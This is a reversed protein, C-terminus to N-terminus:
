KDAITDSTDGGQRSRQVKGVADSDEEIVALIDTEVENWDERAAETVVFPDSSNRYPYIPEKEGLHRAKERSSLDRLFIKRYSGKDMVTAHKGGNEGQRTNYYQKNYSYGKYAYYRGGSYHGGMKSEIVGNFIAGLVNVGGMDLNDLLEKVGGKTSIGARVNVALGDVHKAIAMLESAFLLPPTDILIYDYIGLLYDILAAYAPSNFIASPLPPLKGPPLIHLFQLDDIPQVIVEEVSLGKTVVDVLGQKSKKLNFFGALQPLRLDGDILLVKQNNMAMATGINATVTTKGEGMGSSSISFVRQQGNYMGFSINNAILKYRESEFSLPNNHVILSPYEMSNDYSLLPIWGLLPRNSGIIKRLISEDKITVDSMERAIALLVGLALGLLVAVALILMVNPSVPNNHVIAEDVVTVSRAVAAEAIKVEELLEMLRMRLAEYVEVERQLDLLQRELQPLQSLEQSFSNEIKTLVQIESDTLIQQHISKAYERQLQLVEPGSVSDSAVLLNTRDLLSKAKQSIASQLEFMRATNQSDFETSSIAEYLIKEELLGEYSKILSEMSPDRTLQEISPVTYGAGELYALFGGSTISAEQKQLVLPERRLQFYAIKESLVKSKDSLQIFNSAERFAGLADAAKKLAAENLPIQTQIFEKQVTKSDKAISGLLDNYSSALANAFDAAFVKNQDRVTIRVINTDKVTTVSTNSKVRAQLDYFTYPNGEEDRYQSLDLLELAQQINTRSLTLEVETSIKQTSQGLLVSEIDSGKQLSDVLLTVSSEYQPTVYYLYGSAAAMVFLFTVIIWRMRTKLIHLLEAISLGETDEMMDMASDNRSDLM